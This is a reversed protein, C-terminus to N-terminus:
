EIVQRIDTAMAVINKTLDDSYGWDTSEQHFCNSLAQELEQEADGLIEQLKLLVAQAAEVVENTSPNLSTQLAM